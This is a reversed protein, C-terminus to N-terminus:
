LLDCLCWHHILSNIDEREKWGIINHLIAMLSLVEQDSQPQDRQGSDFILSILTLIKGM